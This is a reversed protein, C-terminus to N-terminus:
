SVTVHHNGMGLLIPPRMARAMLTHAMSTSSDMEMALASAYRLWYSSLHAGKGETGGKKWRHEKPFPGLAENDPGSEIHFNVTGSKKQFFPSNLGSLTSMFSSGGASHARLSIAALMVAARADKDM